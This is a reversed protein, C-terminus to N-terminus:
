FGRTLVAIGKKSPIFELEFEPYKNQWQTLIESESDRGADDLIVVAKESLRDYFLPLAPYRANQQTKVPPGDVILLDIKQQTSVNDTSYWKWSKGELQHEKIPAFVVSALNSLGHKQLQQNTKNGYFEDHDLSLIKGKNNKKLTYGSVLTTVGSGAELIFDPKLLQIYEMVTVALDPKAAWKTMSPLPYKLDLMNHIAILAQNQRREEEMEIIISRYIHFVALMVIILLTSLAFLILWPQELVYIAAANVIFYVLAPLYIYKNDVYKINIDEFFSM